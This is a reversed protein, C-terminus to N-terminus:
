VVSKRDVASEGCGEYNDLESAVKKIVDIPLMSPGASFNFARETHM